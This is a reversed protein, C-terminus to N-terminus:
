MRLGKSMAATVVLCLTEPSSDRLQRMLELGSGDPLNKDIVAVDFRRGRAKAIADAVSVALEPPDAGARGVVLSLLHRISEEDDVVLVSGPVLRHYCFALTAPDCMRM